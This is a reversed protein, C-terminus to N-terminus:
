KEVAVYQYKLSKARVGQVCGLLLPELLYVIKSLKASHLKLRIENASHM